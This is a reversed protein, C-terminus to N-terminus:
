PVICVGNTGGFADEATRAYSPLSLWRGDEDKVVRIRYPYRGASVNVSTEWVGEEVQTLPIGPLSWSSFAGTVYPQGEGEYPVRFRLGQETSRCVSRRPPETATGGLVRQIRLRVGAAVHVDTRSGDRGALSAELARVRGFVTVSPRATWEASLGMRGVRDRETVDPSAFQYQVQEAGVEATLSLTGTPWYTASLTGGTGGYGSESAAATRGDSRYLRLGGRLRDTLWYSARLTALGSWQRAVTTSSRDIRQTIGARLTLQTQPSPTWRVSPLTWWGDRAAALRYRTAGGVLGVSWHAGLRYRAAAFGQLLQPRNEHQPYLLTRAAVDIRTRHGDRTLSLRPTLSAFAPDFGPDWTGAVPDLYPNTQYGGSLGLAATGRWQQAAAPPISILCVAVLGFFVRWILSRFCTM